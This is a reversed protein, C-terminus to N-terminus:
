TRKEHKTGRHVLMMWKSIQKRAKSPDYFSALAQAFRWAGATSHVSLLSAVTDKILVRYVECRRYVASLLRRATLLLHSSKLIRSGGCTEQHVFM